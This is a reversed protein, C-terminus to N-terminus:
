YKIRKAGQFSCNTVVNIDFTLFFCFIADSHCSRTKRSNQNRHEEGFFFHRKTQFFSFFESVESPPKRKQSVLFCSSKRCFFSKAALNNGLSAVSSCPARFLVASHHCTATAPRNKKKERPWVHFCVPCLSSPFLNEEQHEATLLINFSGIPLVKQKKELKWWWELYMSLSCVCFVLLAFLTIVNWKNKKLGSLQETGKKEIEECFFLKNVLIRNSFFFILVM